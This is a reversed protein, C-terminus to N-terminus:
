FQWLKRTCVPDEGLSHRTLSCRRGLSNRLIGGGGSWGPNGKSCGDTNLTLGRQTKAQWRVIQYNVGSAQQGSWDYLQPFTVRGLRHNFHIKLEAAVDSMIAQRITIACMRTGEFVAQNRAKWIHWCIYCPLIRFLIRRKEARPGVIWSAVVRARLTSVVTQLGSLCTFYTWVEM